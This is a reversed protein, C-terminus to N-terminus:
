VAENSQPVRFSPRALLLRQQNKVRGGGCADWTGERRNIAEPPLKDAPAFLGACTQKERGCESHECFIRAAGTSETKFRQYCASFGSADAAFLAPACKFHLSVSCFLVFIIIKGSKHLYNLLFDIKECILHLIFSCLLFGNWVKM